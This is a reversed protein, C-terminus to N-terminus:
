CELRPAQINKTAERDSVRVIALDLFPDVYVKDAESFEQGHFAVEVRSPSRGVVHANTMIWGRAADVVFGAGLGSGKRDGDFPVPITARIQVTYRLAGKFVDESVDAAAGFSATPVLAALVGTLAFRALGRYHEM